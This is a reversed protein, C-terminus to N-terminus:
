YDDLGRGKTAALDDPTSVSNDTYSGAAKKADMEVHADGPILADPIPARAGVTIGQEALANFKMDSMSVFRDILTIGLWHLVDPMLTQFLMYQVGAVCETKEFCAEATDGAPSRKRANYVIFKTVKSMARGEKRNNVILGAGGNQAEIM